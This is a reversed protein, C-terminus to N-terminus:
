PTVFVFKDTRGRNVEDYVAPGDTLPREVIDQPPRVQGSEFAGAFRDLMAACARGDYLLSNVGIIGGGRRYLDLVPLNVHGDLPAAIVAIRGFPALAAVAAALWFGTTDYVLDAGDPFRARVGAALSAPDDLRFAPVGQAELATVQESRRVAAVVQAGCWRALAVAATGVAGGAGVVAVRSGSGVGARELGDWATTFPVGCAAAQVFSLSAPKTAVGEAAVSIFEAHSGDRTFGLGKGTGWVERGQLGAPGEVVIGAFDRGPVRPVTTYPFRGLVNKIDSPNVGAARIKVLIEGPGPRPTAVEAVRLAALDGTHDFRLAKM